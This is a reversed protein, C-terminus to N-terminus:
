GLHNMHLWLVTFANTPTTVSQQQYSGCVSTRTYCCEVVSFGTIQIIYKLIWSLENKFVFSVISQCGVLVEEANEAVCLLVFKTWVYKLKVEVARTSKTEECFDGGSYFHSIYSFYLDNYWFLM